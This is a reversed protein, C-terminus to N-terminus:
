LPSEIRIVSLAPCCYSAFFTITVTGREINFPLPMTKVGDRGDVFVAALLLNPISAQTLITTSNLDLKQPSASPKIQPPLTAGWYKLEPNPRPLLLLFGGRLLKVRATVMHTCDASDM